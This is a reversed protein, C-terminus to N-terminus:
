KVVGDLMDSTFQSVSVGHADALQTLKKKTEASVTVGLHKTRNTKVYPTWVGYTQLIRQVKQRPLTFHSSCQSLKHGAQYYACIQRDRDEMQEQKEEPTM